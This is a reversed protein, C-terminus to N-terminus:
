SPPFQEPRWPGRHRRDLAEDDRRDRRTPTTDDVLNGLAALFPPLAIAFAFYPPAPGSKWIRARLSVAV